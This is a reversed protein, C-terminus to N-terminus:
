GLGEAAVRAAFRANTARLASEADVGHNRAWAVLEFLAEGVLESTVEEGHALTELRVWPADTRNQDRLRSMRELYADAQALAPLGAPVGTLPSGATGSNQREARKIAEWNALVEDTGSVTADGFVHPHRRILKEVILRIVEPMQFRGEEAAIQAQMAVQVLLDGQEEAVKDADDADLAALLEYAEELLTARLKSWTLAQDWPCGDPARLHAIVDQLAQFSSATPLPPILVHVGRVAQGPSVNMRPVASPLSTLRVTRQTQGDIVAVNWDAPYTLSLIRCLREATSALKLGILLVPQGPDLLPYYQSAAAEASAVQLSGEWRQEGLAAAAQELEERGIDLHAEM